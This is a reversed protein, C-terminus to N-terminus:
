TSLPMRAVGVDLVRDSCAGVRRVVDGTQRLREGRRQEELLANLRRVGAEVIADLLANGDYPSDAVVIRSRRDCLDGPLPKL